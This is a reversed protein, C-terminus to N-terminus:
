RSFAMLYLAVAWFLTGCTYPPPPVHWQLQQSLIPYSLAVKSCGQLLALGEWRCGCSSGPAAPSNDYYVCAGHHFATLKPYVTCGGWGHWGTSPHSVRGWPVAWLGQDPVTGLMALPVGQSYLCIDTGGVHQRRWCASAFVEGERVCTSVNWMYRGDTGDGRTCM